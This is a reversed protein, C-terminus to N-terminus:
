LIDKIASILYDCQMKVVLTKIQIHYLQGILHHNDLTLNEWSRDDFVQKKLKDYDVLLCDLQYEIDYKM